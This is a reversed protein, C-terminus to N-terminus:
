VLVCMYMSHLFAVVPAHYIDAMSCLIEVNERIAVEETICVLLCIHV